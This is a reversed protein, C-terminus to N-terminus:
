HGAAARRARARNYLELFDIKEVQLGPLGGARGAHDIVNNIHSILYNPVDVCLVQEEVPKPINSLQVDAVYTLECIFRDDGKERGHLTLTAEVIYSGSDNLPRSLVNGSVGV